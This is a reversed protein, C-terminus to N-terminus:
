SVLFNLLSFVAANSIHVTQVFLGNLISPLLPFHCQLWFFTTRNHREMASNECPSPMSVCIPMAIAQAQLRFFPLHRTKSCFDIYKIIINVENVNWAMEAKTYGPGVTGFCNHVDELEYKLM